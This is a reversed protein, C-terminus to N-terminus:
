IFDLKSSFCLSPFFCCFFVPSSFTTYLSACWIFQFYLLYRKCVCVCVCVIEYIYHLLIFLLFCLLSFVCVCVASFFFFLHFSSNGSDQHLDVHKSLLLLLVQTNIKHTYTPVVSCKISSLTHRHTEKIIIIISM